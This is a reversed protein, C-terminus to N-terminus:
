GCYEGNGTYPTHAEMASCLAGCSCLTTGLQLCVKYVALRLGSALIQMDRPSGAIGAHGGAGPGFVAQMVACCDMPVRDGERSLTVTGREPNYALVMAGEPGYLHNVFKDASRVLLMGVPTSIEAVLSERDLSAQAEAWAEGAALLTARQPSNEMFLHLLMNMHERVQETVDLNGERPAMVRHNQSWAWYAQIMAMAQDAAEQRLSWRALAREGEYGPANPFEGVHEDLFKQAKHPGNLDVCAALAWFLTEEASAPTYGALRM